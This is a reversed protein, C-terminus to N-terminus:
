NVAAGHAGPADGAGHARNRGSRKALGLAHDAKRVLELEANGDHPCSAIGMSVTIRRRRGFSHNEIAGRLREAAQHAGHQDTHPLLVVFEEGGYRAVVDTSRAWTRLVGGLDKLIQDGAPHGHVDNFQRFHDIDIFLLSYPQMSLRSLEAQQLLREEFHRRNHVGTLEDMVGLERRSQHHLLREITAATLSAVLMLLHKDREGFAHACSHSLNVVGILEGGLVLPVSLFSRVVPLGHQAERRLDSLLIPRREKAVWSSLGFGHEFRVSRILDVREGEQHALELSGTARNALYLTANEYTVVQRLLGLVGSFVQEPQETEQILRSVKLLLAMEGNEPREGKEQKKLSAGLRDNLKSVQAMFQAPRKEDMLKELKVSAGEADKPSVCGRTGLLKVLRQQSKLFHTSAEFLGRAGRGNRSKM